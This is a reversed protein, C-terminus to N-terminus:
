NKNLISVCKKIVRDNDGTDMIIDPKVRTKSQDKRNIFFLGETLLISSSDDFGFLRLKSVFGETEIGVLTAKGGMKKKFSQFLSALLEGYMKTSKNIIIVAEYKLAEQSGLMYNESKDKFKVVLPVRKNFFLSSIERFSKFDGGSYKRLDIILKKTDSKLLRSKLIKLCEDDFRSLKIIFIGGEM